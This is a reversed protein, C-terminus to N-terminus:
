IDKQTQLCWNVLPQKQLETLDDGKRDSFNKGLRQHGKPTRKEVQIM